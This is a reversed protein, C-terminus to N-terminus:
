TKLPLDALGQLVGLVSFLSISVVQLHGSATESFVAGSGLMRFRFM